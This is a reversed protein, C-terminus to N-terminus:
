SHEHSPLAEIQEKSWSTTAHIDGDEDRMFTLSSAPIVVSKGFMGLFTGVDAVVQLNAGSGHVHSISGVSADNLDYIEAGILVSGSVQSVDFHQHQTHDM